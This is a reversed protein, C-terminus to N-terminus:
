REVAELMAKDEEEIAEGGMLLGLRAYTAENRDLTALFRGDVMVAVRDSLLLIEEIETSFLVIACGRGREAQLRSLVTETAGVDLGRTPQSAILLPPRRCLERALVAKQQN